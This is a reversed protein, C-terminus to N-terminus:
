SSSGGASGSRSTLWSGITAAAHRSVCPCDSLLLLRGRGTFGKSAPSRGEPPAERRRIRARPARCRVFSRRALAAPSRLALGTDMRQQAGPPSCTTLARPQAIQTQYGPTQSALRVLLGSVVDPTAV